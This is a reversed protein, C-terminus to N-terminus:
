AEVKDVFEGDPEAVTGFPNPPLSEGEDTLDTINVNNYDMSCHCLLQHTSDATKAM